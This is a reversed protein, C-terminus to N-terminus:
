ARAIGDGTAYIRRVKSVLFAHDRQGAVVRGIFEESRGNGYLEATDILTMALSLGTRLAEQEIAEPHADQGLRMSGQGLAPVITGDRFKVMRAAGRSSAAPTAARAPTSSPAAVTASLAPVLTACLESFERRSLLRNNM